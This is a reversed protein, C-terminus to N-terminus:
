VHKTLKILEAKKGTFNEWRTIIVDIYGPDIEMGYCIRNTQECAILTSGSGLFPDYVIMDKKTGDTILQNLIDLPKMTPHLDNVNRAEYDIVTTRNKPGYFKHRTMWGYLIIEHKSHYDKRGFVMRNKNWVLYSTIFFKLKTLAQTLSALETDGM